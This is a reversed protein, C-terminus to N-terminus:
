VFNDVITWCHNVPGVGLEEDLIELRATALSSPSNM